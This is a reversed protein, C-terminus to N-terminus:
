DEKAEEMHIAWLMKMRQASKSAKLADNESPSPKRVGDTLSADFIAFKGCHFCFSLDGDNPKANSDKLISVTRDHEAGCNWCRTKIPLAKFNSM